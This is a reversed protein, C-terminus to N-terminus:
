GNIITTTVGNATYLLTGLDNAADARFQGNNGLLYDMQRFRVVMNSVGGATQGALARETIPLSVQGASTPISGTCVFPIYANNQAYLAMGAPVNASGTVCGPVAYGATNITATNNTTLFLAFTGINPNSFYADGGGNQSSANAALKFTVTTVAGAASNLGPENGNLSNNSALYSTTIGSIFPMAGVSTYSGQCPTNETIYSKFYSTNGGVLIAVYSGPTITVATGAAAASPASSGIFGTYTLGTVSTGIGSGKDYGAVTYSQQGNTPFSCSVQKSQYYAQASAISSITGQGPLVGPQAAGAAVAAPVTAVAGTGFKLAGSWMLGAILVVGLLILTGNSFKAM